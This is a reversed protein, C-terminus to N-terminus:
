GGEGSAASWRFIKVHDGSPDGEEYVLRARPSPIGNEFWDNAYPRGAPSRGVLVIYNPNRKAIYRLALDSDATPLLLLDAGAYYVTQLEAAM